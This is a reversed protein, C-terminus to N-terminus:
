GDAAAQLAAIELKGMKLMAEMARRAREPDDDGILEELGAPVVQVVTVVSQHGVALLVLALTVFPAALSSALGL